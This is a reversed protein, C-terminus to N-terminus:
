VVESAIMTANEAAIRLNDAVAWLWIANRGNRDATLAGLSIGSQGAISVNNPAEAGSSRLELPEQNLADELVEFDPADEFEVWFSFSYGHFVPAQVLRLSPMPVGELRELLTALHREIREEISELSVVAQEGLEPLLSFSLQADFVKKPLEQFNLLAITQKQLEDIGAKGRESAPEFIQVVAREIAATESLRKLVAAIVVAAPHAVIQPGNHDPEYDGAEIQPARVRATPEDELAWTLDILVADGATEAAKKSSEPSGALIVVAADGLSDPDLKTVLVPEGAVETLRGSEEEDGAVLRLNRAIPTEGVVESVERGVLSDGGVLAVIDAM